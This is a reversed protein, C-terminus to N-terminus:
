GEQQQWVVQIMKVGEHDQSGKGNCNNTDRRYDPIREFLLLMCGHAIHGYLEQM